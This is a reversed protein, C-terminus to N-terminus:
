TTASVRGRMTAARARVPHPSAKKKTPAAAAIASM